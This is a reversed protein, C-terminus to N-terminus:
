IRVSSRDALCAFCVRVSVPLCVVVASSLRRHRAPAPTPLAGSFPASRHLATMPAARPSAHPARRCCPLSLRAANRGHQAQLRHQAQLMPVACAIGAAAHPRPARRAIPVPVAANSSVTTAM